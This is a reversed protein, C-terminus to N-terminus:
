INGKSSIRDSATATEHFADGENPTCDATNPVVLVPCHALRILQEATSGLVAHRLGGYGHTSTIVMDVDARKTAEVLNEVTVGEEVETEASIGALAVSDRLQNMKDEAQLRATELVSQSMVSEILEPVQVVHM